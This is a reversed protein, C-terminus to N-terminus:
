TYTAVTISAKKYRSFLYLAFSLLPSLAFPFLKGLRTDTCALSKFRACTPLHETNCTLSIYAKRVSVCERSMQAEQAFSRHGKRAVFICLLHCFCSRKEKFRSDCGTLEGCEGVGRTGLGLTMMISENDSSPQITLGFTRM